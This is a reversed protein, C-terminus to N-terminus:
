QRAKYISFFWPLVTNIFVNITRERDFSIFPFSNQTNFAWVAAMMKISARPSWVRHKILQLDRVLEKAPVFCVYALSGM